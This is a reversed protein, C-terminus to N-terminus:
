FNFDMGQTTRSPPENTFKLPSSPAEAKKAPPVTPSVKPAEAENDGFFTKSFTSVRSAIPRFPSPSKKSGSGPAGQDDPKSVKFPSEELPDSGSTESPKNTSAKEQSSPSKPPGLDASKKPSDPAIEESPKEPSTAEDETIKADPSHPKEKSSEMAEVMEPDETVPCEVMHSSSHTASRLARRKSPPPRAPRKRKLVGRAQKPPAAPDSTVAEVNEDATSASISRDSVTQESGEKGSPDGLNDGSGKTAEAIVSPKKETTAGRTERHYTLRQALGVEVGNILLSPKPDTADWSPSLGALGLTIEDPDVWWLANETILKVTELEADSLQPIVDAPRESLDTLAMSAPYAESKVFFFEPKWRKISTPLGTCLEVSNPRKSFSIWDGSPSDKYFHRFLKLSPVIDLSRCILIFSIIKRFGNPVLQILHIQYYNLVETIFNNLPFRLGSMVHYHYVGTFDAPPTRITEKGSPLKPEYERPVKYKEIIDELLKPTLTSLTTAANKTDKAM